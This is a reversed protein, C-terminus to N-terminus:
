TIKRRNVLQQEIAELAKRQFHSLVGYKRADQYLRFLVDAQHPGTLDAKRALCRYIREEDTM